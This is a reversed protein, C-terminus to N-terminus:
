ITCYPVYKRICIYFKNPVSLGNSLWRLDVWSTRNALWWQLLLIWIGLAHNLGENIHAHSIMSIIRPNATTVSILKSYSAMKCDTIKNMHIIFFYSSYYLCKILPKYRPFNKQLATATTVM